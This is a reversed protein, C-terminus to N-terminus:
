CISIHNCLDVQIWFHAVLTICSDICNRKPTSGSTYSIQLGYGECGSTSCMLDSKCRHLSLGNLQVTQVLRVKIFFRFCVLPVRVHCSNSFDSCGNFAIRTGRDSWYFSSLTILQHYMKGPVGAYELVCSGVLSVWASQGPSVNKNSSAFWQQDIAWNMMEMLVCM